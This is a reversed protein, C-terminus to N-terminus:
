SFPHGHISTHAEQIREIFQGETEDTRCTLSVNTAGLRALVTAHHIRGKQIGAKQGSVSVPNDTGGVGVTRVTILTVRESHPEHPVLKALRGRLNM